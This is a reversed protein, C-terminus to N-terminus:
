PWLGAVSNASYYEGEGGLEPSGPVATARARGLEPVEGDRPPAAGGM